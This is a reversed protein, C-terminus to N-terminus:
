EHHHGCHCEHEDCEGDECDCDGDECECSYHQDFDAIAQEVEEWEADEEIQLLEGTGDEHEIYAAASLELTENEDELSDVPYFVVYKKNFRESEFTFLIECLNENGEDDVIVLQNDKPQLESM